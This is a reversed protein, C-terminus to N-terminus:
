STGLVNPSPPRAPCHPLLEPVKPHYNFTIESDVSRDGALSLVWHAGPTQPLASGDGSM